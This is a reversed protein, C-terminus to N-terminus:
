VAPNADHCRRVVLDSRGPQKGRVSAPRADAGPGTGGGQLTRFRAPTDITAVFALSVVPGVGPITMLRRCVEDNRVLALLKRHLTAFHERLERRAQLLPQIIEILDPMSELLEHIRVEFRVAGVAGVKLGFNRM